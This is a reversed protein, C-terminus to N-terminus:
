NEVFWLVNQYATLLYIRIYDFIKPEFEVM